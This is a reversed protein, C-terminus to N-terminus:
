SQLQRLLKVALQNAGVGPRNVLPKINAGGFWRRLLAFEHRGADSVDTM